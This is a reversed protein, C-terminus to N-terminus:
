HGTGTGGGTGATGYIKIYINPCSEGGNGGLHSLAGCSESSSAALCLHGMGTEMVTAVNYSKSILNGSADRYETGPEILRCTRCSQEHTPGKKFGQEPPDQHMYCAPSIDEARSTTQIVFTLGLMIFLTLALLKSKQSVLKRM